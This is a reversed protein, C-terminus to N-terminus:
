RPHQENIPIERANSLFNESRESNIDTDDLLQGGHGEGGLCFIFFNFTATFIFMKKFFFNPQGKQSFKLVSNYSM